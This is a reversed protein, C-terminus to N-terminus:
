PRPLARRGGRRRGPAAPAVRRGRPGGRGHRRSGVARRRRAADQSGASTRLCLFYIGAPVERSDSSGGDWVRVHEGPLLMGSQLTRVVRGSADVVSLRVYEPRSIRFAVRTDRTTPNPTPLGFFVDGAFELSRQASALGLHNVTGTGDMVSLRYYYTRGAEAGTDLALTTEGDQSLDTSIAGWPGDEAVAREITIALVDARDSFQWRLLIGDSRGEATFRALLTAVVMNVWGIDQLLPMTMDVGDHLDTNIFPEMLANPTATVDWHSVSSGSTWTSPTYMLPRNSADVGALATPHLKVTVNVGSALNAKLTTADALSIGVIPIVVSADAGGMPNPPLGAANNAVILGIAGADQAAKAKVAFTCTGRDIMAWNGAIAAANVFPQECGDGTPATPDEVLVVDGTVGTATISAGFAAGVMSYEGAIGAPSNVLLMPRKGLFTPAYARVYSGDWALKNVAVGSTRRQTATMQNWHLSTANDYLFYDYIHPSSSSYNGTSGNTTTMFGLGHSIEHLIVSLLESDVGENGDVGYYWATGGLCTRADLTSNFSINMDNTAGALDYGAFSNALSQPYWTNTYPSGAGNRISSTSTSGLTASTADCTMPNFAATVLIPAASVLKGGWINAAYQFLYLRQGGLTTAPNGGVPAVVTPDNFGENVGDTNVITITAAGAVAASLGLLLCIMLPLVGRSRSRHLTTM